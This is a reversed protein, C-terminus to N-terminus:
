PAVSTLMTGVDDVDDHEEVVVPSPEPKYDRIHAVIQGRWKVYLTDYTEWGKVPLVDQYFKLLRAFKDTLASADGLNVVHGRVAPLLFIDGRADVHIASTLASLAPDAQIHDIVPVAMMPSRDATFAGTIVPVDVRFRPGGQMKKGARNIYYNKGSNEFVRAVPRLPVVDLRLAENNLMICNASEINDMKRILAEISRTDITNRPSKEVDVTLPGLESAIDDITVFRRNDPDIVNIELGKYPENAAQINFLPICVCLYALM